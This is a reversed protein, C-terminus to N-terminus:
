RVTRTKVEPKKFNHLNYSTFGSNSSPYHTRSPHANLPPHPYGSSRDSKTIQFIPQRMKKLLLQQVDHQLAKWSFEGLTHLLDELKSIDASKCGFTKLTIRDMALQFITKHIETKTKPLSKKEVFVVVTM